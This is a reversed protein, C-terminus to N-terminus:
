NRRFTSPPQPVSEAEPLSPCIHPSIGLSAISQESRQCSTLPKLAISDKHSCLPSHGFNDCICLLCYTGRSCLDLWCRRNHASGSVGSKKERSQVLSVPDGVDNIGTLNLLCITGRELQCCGTAINQIKCCPSSYPDSIKTSGRFKWRYVNM